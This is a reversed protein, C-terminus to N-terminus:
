TIDHHPVIWEKLDKEAIKEWGDVFDVKYQKLQDM